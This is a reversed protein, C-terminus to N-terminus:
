REGVCLIIKGVHTSSEMLAHAEAAERLPFVKHIVPACKGANLLPWVKARLDDAIAGKQATTRPRMTSGTLTLRRTMINLLNLKETRSGELFAIFVLRGDMALSSINKDAYPAGVMDLIVDVGRGGTLRKIEAQFDQTRYNIAADAGLTVCAACKEDSGATIFIEAGFAKGLQIATTGIGSSGGHILATEGAALRGAQFLNTWVTFCTEPLAGAQIADYGEPWPLCQAAPAVCFEAYGGGNTLACIKEGIAWGTVDAGIAAIEGAVELGIIPSAGPPPPYNGTRQAVDPRNVGAALVRILIEDPKPAPLPGTTPKLVQPAGPSDMTIFRMTAPLSM